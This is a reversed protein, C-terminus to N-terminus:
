YKLIRKVMYIHLGNKVKHGPSGLQVTWSPSGGPSFGHKRLWPDIEFATLETDGRLRSEASKISMDNPAAIGINCVNDIPIPDFRNFEGYLDPNKDIFRRLKAVVGKAPSHVLTMHCCDSAFSKKFSNTVFRNALVLTAKEPRNTIPDLRRLRLVRTVRWIGPRYMCDWDGVKISSRM